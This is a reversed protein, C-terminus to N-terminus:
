PLNPGASATHRVPPATARLPVAAPQLGVAPSGRLWASGPATGPAVGCIKHNTKNRSNERKPKIEPKTDTFTRGLSLPHSLSFALHWAAEERPKLRSHGRVRRMQINSSRKAFNRMIEQPHSSSIHVPHLPGLSPGLPPGLPTPLAEWRRM